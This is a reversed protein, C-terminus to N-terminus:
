GNCSGRLQCRSPLRHVLRFLGEADHAVEVVHTGAADGREQQGSRFPVDQNVSSEFLGHRQDAGADFLEPETEFVDLDQEVAVSVEVMGAAEGSKLLEGSRPQHRADLVRGEQLAAPEAIIEESVVAGERGYLDVAPQVMAVHDREASELQGGQDRRAMGPTYTM